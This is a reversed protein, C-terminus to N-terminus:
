KNKGGAQMLAYLIIGNQIIARLTESLDTGAFLENAVPLSTAMLGQFILTGIIVHAIRARSVSAGGILVGAVATFGFMLPDQYLQTYGFSQAYVIIGLAGLMMSVVNALLRGRDVNLGAANAFMPNSGGASIAIGTKSRMFLWVLFCVVIFILLIGTPINVGFIKFSLFNDLLQSTGIVDLQITQRLGGRQSLPWTMRQDNFPLVLWLVCFFMVASFGSYTAISMESGKVMNMLKGYAYGLVSSFVIAFLASFVLWGVGSFGLAMACVQALLGCVIGIPLAFNPGVGSQISPVMALTLIGWRGFRKLGDSIMDPLQLNNIVGLVLILIWFAAIILTPIGVFDLLSKIEFGTKKTEAM